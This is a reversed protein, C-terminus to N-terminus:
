PVTSGARASRRMAHVAFVLNHRGPRGLVRRPGTQREVTWGIRLPAALVLRARAQGTARAAAFSVNRFERGVEDNELRDAILRLALAQVRAIADDQNAGYALVGPLEVVEAIWRGDTERELGIRSVVSM